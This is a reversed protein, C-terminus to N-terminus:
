SLEALRVALRDGLVDFEGWGIAQGNVAVPVRSGEAQGTDIISNLELRLLDGVTFHPVPLEVGLRCPLLLAGAWAESRALAGEAREVAESAAM